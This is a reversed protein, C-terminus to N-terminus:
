RKLKPPPHPPELTHNMPLPFFPSFRSSAFPLAFCCLANMWSYIFRMCGNPPPPPKSITPHPLDPSPISQLLQAHLAQRQQLAGPEWIDQHPDSKRKDRPMSGGTAIQFFPPDHQPVDLDLLIIAVSGPPKRVLHCCCLCIAPPLPPRHILAGYVTGDSSPFFIRVLPPAAALLSCCAGALCFVPRDACAARFCSLWWYACRLM